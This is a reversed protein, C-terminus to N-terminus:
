NFLLFLVCGSSGNSGRLDDRPLMSELMVRAEKVSPRALVPGAWCTTMVRRYQEDWGDLLEPRKGVM